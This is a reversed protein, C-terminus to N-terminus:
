IVSAAGLKLKMAGLGLPLEFFCEVVGDDVVKVLALDAAQSYAHCRRLVSGKLKLSMKRFHTALKM